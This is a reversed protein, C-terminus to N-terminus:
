KIYKIDFIMDAGNSNGVEVKEFFIKEEPSFEIEYIESPGLRITNTNNIKFTAGKAGQVGLAYVSSGNMESDNSNNTDFVVKDAETVSSSKIIQKIKYQM